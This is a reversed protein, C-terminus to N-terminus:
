IPEIIHLYPRAGQGSSSVVKILTELNALTQRLGAGGASFCLAVEGDTDALEPIDFHRRAVQDSSAVTKLLAKGDALTQRLGVGSASCRLKLSLRM